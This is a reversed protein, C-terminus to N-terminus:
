ARRTTRLALAGAFSLLGMLGVLPFPSATSPLHHKRAPPTPQAQPQPQPQPQPPPTAQSVQPQTEQPQTEQPQPAPPPAAEAAQPQQEEPQPAPAPAPAPAEAQPQEPTATGLQAQNPAENPTVVAPVNQNNAQALQGAVQQPYAFEQGFNDGPYYWAKLAPPQGAPVEWFTFQENNGPTLKYTPIALITTELKSEDENFIQVINRDATSDALRLIYTGPQLTKGPIALPEKVTLITKKDWEDARSSPLFALAALGLCSVFAFAKMRNM